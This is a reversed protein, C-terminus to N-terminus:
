GGGRGELKERGHEADTLSAKTELEGHAKTKRPRIDSLTTGELEVWTTTFPLIENNKFASYYGM